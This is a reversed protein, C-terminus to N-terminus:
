PSPLGGGVVRKALDGGALAESVLMLQKKGTAPNTACAAACVVAALALTSRPRRMPLNQCPAAVRATGM